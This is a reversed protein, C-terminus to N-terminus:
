ARSCAAMSSNLAVFSFSYSLAHFDCNRLPRMRGTMSTMPLKPYTTTAMMPLTNATCPMIVTPSMWANMWYTFFKM